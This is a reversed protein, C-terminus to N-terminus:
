LFYWALHQYALFNKIQQLTCKSIRVFNINSCTNMFCFLLVYCWENRLNKFSIIKCSFLLFDFKGVFSLSIGLLCTSLLLLIICLSSTTSFRPRDLDRLIHFSLLREIKMDKRRSIIFM